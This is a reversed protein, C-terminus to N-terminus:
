AVGVIELQGKLTTVSSEDIRVPVLEGVLRESGPFIVKRFGRTRGMYMGEGKRAPGEVLIEQVTGVLSNNRRLSQQELLRLLIQNRDDKVSQPVNDELEAAPTGSRPSYKFIFAMDFAAEKFLDCTLQFDEESEGPFGVIIDTSIHIDPQVARLDNILEMYRGSTYPRNMAKLISDSGSQVPLHVYECLKSLEGYAQVLDDKFGRPHPSTFRIRELGEVANLRELLQVFPSKKDAFPIERRGYSSVIQGLLTVERTGNAVLEEVEAVIDDIPRAREPGRTKPVICFTCKMNCGQMISVFASVQREGPKHANITNQSGAEEELDIISSPRPGQGNMSAILNDLHDPVRHFKQTGAVLDLDPLRDLLESGRNQAMCGLLGLVFNPDKRKRVALHGAKGIAKQEAQDRVSCTNLLVIDAEDEHPVISYGRNRLDVAVQESDRENMQCGYTKIYVRNM